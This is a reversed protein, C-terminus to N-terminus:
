PDQVYVHGIVFAESRPKSDQFFSRWTMRLGIGFDHELSSGPLSENDMHDRRGRRIYASSYRSFLFNGTMGLGLEFDFFGDGDMVTAIRKRRAVAM